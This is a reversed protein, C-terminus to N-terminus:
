LAFSIVVYCLKGANGSVLEAASTVTNDASNVQQQQQQPHPYNAEDCRQTNMLDFSERQAKELLLRAKVKLEEHRSQM